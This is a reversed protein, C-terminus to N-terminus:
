FNKIVPPNFFGGGGGGPIVHERLSFVYLILIIKSSSVLSSAIILLEGLLILYSCSIFLVAIKALRSMQGINGRFICKKKHAGELSVCFILIKKTTLGRLDM